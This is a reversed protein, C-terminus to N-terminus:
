SATVARKAEIAKLIPDRKAKYLREVEALEEEMQHTLLYRLLM